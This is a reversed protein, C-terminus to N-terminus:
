FPIDDDATPGTATSPRRAPAPERQGGGGGERSGIFQVTDAVVETSYKDIGDKDTWKRTQLRGEVYVQRGKSLYQECNEATRGFVVVRHWETVESWEGDANRRRDTTAVNLNGVKVGSASERVEPDRGLNGILMVKNLM